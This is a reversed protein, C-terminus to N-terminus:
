RAIYRSVRMGSVWAFHLNYGGRDGDVDLVEGVFYLDPTVRSSMTEPDIETTDVGGTAVEASEFGRTSSISLKLSKMAYVLRGIEKRNIESEVGARCKSQELIIPILKKHIIGQLWIAIPKHSQTDLRDLLLTVLREKTYAPMLDLMLECYAYEALRIGVERSIDLIALGSVGYSAFLIDGKTQTAYEGNAYLKVVGSLKVGACRGVWEEDSCLQVLSATSPVITHGMQTALSYGVSSGGLRPAAMSGSAVVLSKARKTGRSTELVFGDADRYASSVACEYLIEVGLRDIEYLMLEAVSSAQMSMPFLKGDSGEVLELGISSFLEVVSQTGYGDLVRCVFDMDSGHFHQLSIDMNGINCRGNGSALIKKAAKNSQELITVEHGARALGIAVCLGSAGAGIITCGSSMFVM